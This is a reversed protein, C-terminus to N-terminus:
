SAHSEPTDQLPEPDVTVFGNTYSESLNSASDMSPATDNPTPSAKPSSTSDATRVSTVSISTLQNRIYNPPFITTEISTLTQRGFINTIPIHSIDLSPPAFLDLQIWLDTNLSVNRLATKIAMHKANHSLKVLDTHFPHFLKNGEAYFVEIPVMTNAYPVIFSTGYEHITTIGVLETPTACHALQNPFKIDYISTVLEALFANQTSTNSVARCCAVQGAKGSHTTQITRVPPSSTILNAPRTNFLTGLQQPKLTYSLHWCIRQLYTTDVNGTAYVKIPLNTLTIITNNNALSLAKQTAEIDQAGYPIRQLYVRFRDLASMRQLKVEDSLICHQSDNLLSAPMSLFDELVNKILVELVLPTGTFKFELYATRLIIDFDVDSAHMQAYLALKTKKIFATIYGSLYIYWEPKNSQAQLGIIITIQLHTPNDQPPIVCVPINSYNLQLLQNNYFLHQVPTRPINKVIIGPPCTQDHFYLSTFNISTYTFLDDPTIFAKLSEIDQSVTPDYPIVQYAIFWHPIMVVGSTSQTSQTSPANNSTETETKDSGASPDPKPASETPLASDPDTQNSKQTPTPPNQNASGLDTDITQLQHKLTTELFLQWNSRDQAVALFHQLMIQYNPQSTLENPNLNRVQEAKNRLNKLYQVFSTNETKAQKIKLYTGEINNETLAQYLTKMQHEFLSLVTAITQSSLSVLELRVVISAIDDTFEFCDFSIDHIIGHSLLIYGLNKTPQLCALKYLELFDKLELSTLYFPLYIHISLAAFGAYEGVSSYVILSNRTAKSAVELRIETQDKKFHSEEIVPSDAFPWPEINGLAIQGFYKQIYYIVNDALAPGQITLRMNAPHYYHRWFSSIENTTVDRLTNASGQFARQLYFFQDAVLHKALAQLRARPEVRVYEFLKELDQCRQGLSNADTSLTQFLEVFLYLSEELHKEPITYRYVTKGLQTQSSFTGHHHAVFRRIHERQINPDPLAVITKELLHSLGPRSVPDHISGVNVSLVVSCDAFNSNEGVLAFMGNSLASRYYRTPPEAMTPGPVIHAKTPRHYNVDTSPSNTSSEDTSAPANPNHYVYLLLGGIMALLVLIRLFFGILSGGFIGKFVRSCM